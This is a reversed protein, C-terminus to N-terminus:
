TQRRHVWDRFCWIVSTGECDSERCAAEFGVSSAPFSEFPVSKREKRGM